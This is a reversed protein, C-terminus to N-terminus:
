TLLLVFSNRGSQVYKSSNIKWLAAATPSVRKSLSSQELKYWGHKWRHLMDTGPWTACATCFTWGCCAAAGCGVGWPISVPTGYNIKHCWIMQKKNTSGQQRSTQWHPFVAALTNMALWAYCHHWGLFQLERQHCGIARRTVRGWSGWSNAGFVQLIWHALRPVRISENM